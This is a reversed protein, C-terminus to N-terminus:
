PASRASEAARAWAERTRPSHKEFADWTEVLSSWMTDYAIKAREMRLDPLKAGLRIAETAFSTCAHCAGGCKAGNVKCLHLAMRQVDDDTPEM